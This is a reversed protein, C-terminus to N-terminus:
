LPFTYWFAVFQRPTELPILEEEPQALLCITNARSIQRQTDAHGRLKWTAPLPSPHLNTAALLPFLLPLSWVSKNRNYSPFPPEKLMGHPVAAGSESIWKGKTNREQGKSINLPIGLSVTGANWICRVRSPTQMNAVALRERPVLVTWM